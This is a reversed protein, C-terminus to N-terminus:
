TLHEKRYASEVAALLTQQISSFEGEVFFGAAREHGGGGFAKAITAVDVFYKSRMSVKYGGRQPKASVSVEVGELSRGLESLNDTDESRAGLEEMDKPTFHILATKGGHLLELKEIARATIHYSLLSQNEYIKTCIDASDAGREMLEAVIRLTTPTTNSYRFGGTDTLIAAYLFSAIKPTVAGEKEKLLSFIIEGTASASTDVYCVNGFGTNTGHHDIVVTEKGGYFCKQRNGLMSDAGCDIAVSLYEGSIFFKHYFAFEGGLMQLVPMPEAEFLVIVEKGQARLYEALAFASGASDWDPNIHPFLLIRQYKQLTESIQKM